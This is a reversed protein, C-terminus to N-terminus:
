KDWEHFNNFYGDYVQNVIQYAEEKTFVNDSQGDTNYIDEVWRYADERTFGKDSSMKNFLQWEEGDFVVTVWDDRNKSPDMYPSCIGGPDCTAGDDSMQNKLDCKLRRNYGDKPRCDRDTVCCDGQYGRGQWWEPLKSSYPTPSPSPGIGVAGEVRRCGCNRMLYHLAFAVLVIMLVNEVSLNM